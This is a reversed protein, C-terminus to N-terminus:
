DGTIVGSVTPVPAPTFEPTTAPPPPEPHLLLWWLLLNLLEQM